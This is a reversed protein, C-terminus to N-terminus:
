KVTFSATSKVVTGNITLAIKGTVAGAPVTATVQKDTVVKMNTATTAGFAVQTTKTLGSGSITVATGVPGSTPNFTTIKAPAAAPAPAATGTLSLTQKTTITASGATKPELEITLTLPLNSSSISAKKLSDATIAVKAVNATSDSTVPLKSVTKPPTETSTFDVSQVQDLHYGNLTVTVGAKDKQIDAYDVQAPNPKGSPGLYPKGSFELTKHSDVPAGGDTTEMFVEYKTAPLNGLSDLKFSVSRNTANGKSAPDLTGSATKPDTQQAANKLTLSQVKDLGTGTLPCTIDGNAANDFDVNKATDLPCGIEALTPTTATQEQIHIGAVVALTLERFIAQARPSWNKYPVKRPQFYASDGTIDDGTINVLQSECAASGADSNSSCGSRAAQDEPSRNYVHACVRRADALDIGINTTTNTQCKTDRDQPPLNMQGLCKASTKHNDRQLSKESKIVIKEACDQVWWGQQFQDSRVFIVFEATGSKPVVTRETRYSSFGEDNLLNLQDTSHDPLVGLLANIFGANYVNAADKVSTGYVLSASSLITGIGKAINIVLNRGSFDKASLMFTRTTLKDTGPTYRGYRGNIDDDVAVQADHVLFEVKDNLNRVVIQIPIFEGAVKEGFAYRTTEYSLISMSCGVDQPRSFAAAAQQAAQAILNQNPKGQPATTAQSAADKLSQGAVAKQAADAAQLLKQAPGLAKAKAVDTKATQAEANKAGQTAAKDLAQLKSDPTQETSGLSSGLELSYASASYKTFDQNTGSAATLLQDAKPDASLKQQALTLAVSLRDQPTQGVAALEKNATAEDIGYKKLVEVFEPNSQSSAAVLDTAAPIKSAISSQENAVTVAIQLKAQPTQEEAGLAKLMESSAIGFKDQVHAAFSENSGQAAFALDTADPDPQTASWLIEIVRGIAGSPTLGVFSSEAISKVFFDQQVQGQPFAKANSSDQAEAIIRTRLEDEQKATLTIVDPNPRLSLLADRTFECPVYDGIDGFVSTADKAIESQLSPKIPTAPQAPPATPDPAATPKKTKAPKSTSAPAAQTEQSGANTSNSQQASAFPTIILNSVVVTCLLSKAARMLM